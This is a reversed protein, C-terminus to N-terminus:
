NEILHPIPSNNIINSKLLELNSCDFIQLKDVEISKMEMTVNELSYERILLYHLLQPTKSIDEFYDSLKIKSNWNDIQIKFLDKFDEKTM